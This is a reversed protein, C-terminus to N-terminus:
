VLCSIAVPVRLVTRTAAMARSVIEKRSSRLVRKLCEVLLGWGVFSLDTGKLTRTIKEVFESILTIVNVWVVDVTTASDM